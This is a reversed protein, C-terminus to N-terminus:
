QWMLDFDYYGYGGQPDKVRLVTTYGNWSSPQQIVNVSGRGQNQAVNVTANTRPISGNGLNARISTPAAGSITRYEVRGNQIRIELENDVNGSWHMLGQNGYRGNSGNSGNSGNRGDDRRRYIDRDDRDNGRGRGKGVYDGNSYSEWYGTIRYSDNGGRSDRIRVITTYNNQSSPQQIVDVSGRGDQVQVVVQGDRRPLQSVVHARARNIENGGVDRTWMQSGRMSIQVERDVPGTWQFIEQGGNQALVMPAAGILAITAFPISRQIWRHMNM